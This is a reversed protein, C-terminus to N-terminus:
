ELRFTVPLLLTVKEPEGDSEGPKWKVSRIAAVAAADCDNHGFSKIIKTKEVEGKKDIIVEVYVTGEIADIRAIAPYKLNRQIASFGEIPEPLGTLPFNSFLRLFKRGEEKTPNEANRVARFYFDGELVSCRGSSFDVGWRVYDTTMIRKQTQDFMPDIYLEGNLKKPEMLSMAEELTPPRWDSFGAFKEENLQHFYIAEEYSSIFYGAITLYEASPKSSGGQQWMLGTANDLVVLSGAIRRLEYQHAIGKGHKNWKADYFDEIALMTKVENESLHTAESRFRRVPTSATPLKHSSVQQKLEDVLNVFSPPHQDPDPAYDPVVELLKRLANKAQDLSDQAMYAQAILKYGRVKASEPLGHTALCRAALNLAENFRGNYYKKEAELFEKECTIQGQCIGFALPDFIIILLVFFLFAKM